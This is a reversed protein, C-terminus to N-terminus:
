GYENYVERTRLDITKLFPHVKYISGNIIEFSVIGNRVRSISKTVMRNFGGLLCLSPTVVMTMEYERRGFQLVVVERVYKHYHSRLMLKPPEEDYRIEEMMKSLAYSRASNGTTWERSGPSPGHHAYDVTLGFIDVLGHDVVEIDRKPNESTLISYVLDYSSGESLSHAPTGTAFRVGVVNKFRLWPRIVDACLLIQDSERTSIKEDTHKNGDVIDGNIILYIPDGDALEITKSMGDLYVDQYLHRSWEGYGRVDQARARKGNTDRILTDPSM